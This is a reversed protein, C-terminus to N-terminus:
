DISLLAVDDSGSPCCFLCPQLTLEFLKHSHQVYGKSCCPNQMGKPPKPSRAIPDLRPALTFRFMTLSDHIQQMFMSGNRLRVGDEERHSGPDRSRSGSDQGPRLM